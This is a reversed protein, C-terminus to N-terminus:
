QYLSLMKWHPAHSPLGSSLHASKTWTGDGSVCFYRYIFKIIASYVCTQEQRKKCIKIRFPQSFFFIFYFSQIIYFFIQQSFQITQVINIFLEDIHCFVYSHCITHNGTLSSNSLTQKLWRWNSLCNLFRVPIVGFINLLM